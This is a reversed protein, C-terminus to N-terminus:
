VPRGSGAQLTIQMSPRKSPLRCFVSFLAWVKPKMSRLGPKNSDEDSLLFEYILALGSGCAVQLPACYLAHLM